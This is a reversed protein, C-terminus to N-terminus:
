RFRYGAGFCINIANTKRNGDDFTQNSYLYGTEAMACWRRSFNYRLAIDPYIGLGHGSNESSENVNLSANTYGLMPKLDLFFSNKVPFSFMPGALISTLSWWKGTTSNKVNYSSNLFSVSIGFKDTFIYGLTFGGTGGTKVPGDNTGADQQDNLDGSPLSPGFLIGAFCKHEYTQEYINMGGSYEQLYSYRELRRENRRYNEYNGNVPIRIRLSGIIVGLGTGLIMVPTGALIFAGLFEDKGGIGRAIGVAGAIGAAAGVISGILLNNKGRISINDINKFDISTIKFNGNVFDQKLLSNSILISSDKIEYLVGTLRSKGNYLSIWTKFIGPENRINEQATSALFSCVALTMLTIYKKMPKM